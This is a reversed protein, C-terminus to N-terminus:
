PCTKKCKELDELYIRDSEALCRAQAGKGARAKAIFCLADREIKDQLAEAECLAREKSPSTPVIPLLTPKGPPLPTSQPSDDPSRPGASPRPTFLDRCGPSLICGIIAVPILAPLAQAMQGDRDIYEAPRGDVYAYTNV